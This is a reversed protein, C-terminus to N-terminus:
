VNLTCVCLSVPISIRLQSLLAHESSTDPVIGNKGFSANKKTGTM